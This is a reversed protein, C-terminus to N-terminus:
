RIIKRLLFAVRIQYCLDDDESVFIMKAVIHMLTLLNVKFSLYRKLLNIVKDPILRYFFFSM